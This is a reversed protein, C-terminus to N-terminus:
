PTSIGAVLVLDSSTGAHYVDGALSGYTGLIGFGADTFAARVQEERWAYLSTAEVRWQWTGEGRRYLTIINFGLRQGEMDYFRLFLWEEDGRRVTQPAMYRQSEALVRDFNRMQILVTGGPALVAAWDSLTEGLSEETLLHPLSSGLCLIADYRGGVLRSIEGFGAQEFRVDLSERRALDVARAIMEGSIDAGTVEYGRRALALAHQGTGCAVDLVRSAARRELWEVLFPMEYELRVPWDVFRDYDAALHDYFAAPDM